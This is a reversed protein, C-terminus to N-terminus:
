PSLAPDRLILLGRLDDSAFILNGVVQVTLAGEFPGGPATQPNWTNYHAVELPSAPNSLDIVRVGDQYYAIYLRNGVLQFNHIGVERRSQYRALETMFTPSSRDADIIRLFAGGDPGTFGEDGHLVIPRGGVTAAFSTHSFTTPIRGLEVPQDLGASVDIAVMGVTTNNAYIRDGDVFMDHVGAEEGPVKTTGIRVPAHPHSVDFVPIDNTYNALYIQSRGNETSHFLTHSYDPLEAVLTPARPDTVDVARTVSRGFPSAYAVTRGDGHVIAVDNSPGTFHSVAVPAAPNSIDIIELGTFTALYAFDGDVAVDIGRMPAGTADTGLEGVLELGKALEDKPGFPKGVLTTFFRENEFITVDMGALTDDPMMCYAQASVAGSTFQRREFYRTGDSWTVFTTGDSADRDDPGALARRFGASCSGEFQPYQFQFRTSADSVFWRGPIADLGGRVCNEPLNLEYPDGLLGELLTTKPECAPGEDGCAALAVVLLLPRVVADYVVARGSADWSRRKGLATVIDRDQRVL